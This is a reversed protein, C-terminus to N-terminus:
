RNVVESYVRKFQEGIAEISYSDRIYAYANEILLARVSADSLIEVAEEFEEVNDALLVNQLHKVGLGEAGIRTSIVIKGSAMAELIKIRIGSGSLLPVVLVDNNLTFDHISDVEGFVDVKSAENWKFMEDPMNRGAISFHIEDHMESMKPWVEKLFWELGEVNPAWDLSGLHYFQYTFSRDRNQILDMGTGIAEQKHADTEGLLRLAEKKDTDSIFVNCDVKRFVELERRALRRSQINLYWKKVGSGNAAIRSWIRHEVNHARLLTKSQPSVEQVLELYETTPLGDFHILDFSNSKLVGELNSAVSENRFRSLHFPKGSLLNFFAGLITVENNIYAISVEGYVGYHKKIEAHSVFHKSTNIFFLHIAYGSSRLSKLLSNM